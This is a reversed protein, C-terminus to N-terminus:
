WYGYTLVFIHRKKRREEEQKQGASGLGAPINLIERGTGLNNVFVNV